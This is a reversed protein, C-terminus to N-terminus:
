RTMLSGFVAEAKAAVADAAADPEPDRETESEFQPLLDAPKVDSEKGTWLGAMANILYAGLVAMRLDDREAGYPEIQYYLTWEVFERYSIRAKM